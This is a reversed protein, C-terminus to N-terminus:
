AKYYLDSNSMSSFRRTLYINLSLYDDHGHIMFCIRGDYCESYVFCVCLQESRELCKYISHELLISSGQWALSTYFWKIMVENSVCVVPIVQSIGSIYSTLCNKLQSINKISLGISNYLKFRYQYLLDIFVINKM